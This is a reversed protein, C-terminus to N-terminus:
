HAGRQWSAGIVRVAGPVVDVTMPVPGLREGDGYAEPPAPGDPWHEIRVEAGRVMSVAPHSLHTGGYVRPFVRLLQGRTVEAAVVVDLLGDDVQAQPAIRM